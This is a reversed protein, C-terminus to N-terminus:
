DEIVHCFVCECVYSRIFIYLYYETNYNQKKEKTSKHIIENNNKRFVHMTNWVCNYMYISFQPTIMVM